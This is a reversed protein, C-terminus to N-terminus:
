RELVEDRATMLGLGALLVLGCILLLITMM